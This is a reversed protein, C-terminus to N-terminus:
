APLDPGLLFRSPSFVLRGIGGVSDAFSYGLLCADHVTDGLLTPLSDDVVGAASVEFTYSHLGGLLRVEFQARVSQQPYLDDFEVVPPSVPAVDGSLQIEVAVNRAPKLGVFQSHGGIEPACTRFNCFSSPCFYTVDAQIRVVPEDGHSLQEASLKVQWPGGWAAFYPANTVGPSVPESHNWLHCFESFSLTLQHPQGDRDWPDLLTVLQQTKSVDTVVRYHGEADDDSFRMLVIVPVAEVLDEVYCAHALSRRGVSAFGFEPFAADSSWGHHGQFQPYLFSCRPTSSKSFKLGRVIDDSLTGQDPTTRLVDIIARQDVDVGYLYNLLMESSADGCSFDTIQRHYPVAGSLRESSAAAVALGIAAVLRVAAAVSMRRLLYVRCEECRSPEANARQDWCASCVRRTKRNYLVM